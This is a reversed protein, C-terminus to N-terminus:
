LVLGGKIVFAMVASIVGGIVFFSVRQHFAGRQAEVEQVNKITQELLAITITLQATTDRFSDTLTYLDRVEEEVRAMRLQLDTDTM